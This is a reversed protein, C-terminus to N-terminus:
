RRGFIQNLLLLCQIILNSSNTSLPSFSVISVLTDSSMLIVPNTTLCFVPPTILDPNVKRRLTEGPLSRSSMLVSQGTSDGERTHKDGRDDDGSSASNLCESKTDVASATFDFSTYYYFFLHSICSFM